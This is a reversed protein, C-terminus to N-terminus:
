SSIFEHVTRATRQDGVESRQRKSGAGQERSRAKSMFEHVTIATKERVMVGNSWCEM